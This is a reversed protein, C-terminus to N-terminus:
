CILSTRLTENNNPAENSYYAFEKYEANNLAKRSTYAIEAASPPLPRRRPTRRSPVLGGSM